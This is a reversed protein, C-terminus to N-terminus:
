KRLRPLLRKILGGAEPVRALAVQQNLVLLEDGDNVLEDAPPNLLLAGDRVLGIALAEERRKYDSAVDIFRLGPQKEGSSAALPVRRIPQDARTLLDYFVQGTEPAGAGHALLSCGIRASQIIEDVGATQFVSVNEPDIVEACLHLPCKRMIGRGALKKEFSRITFATLVSRADADSDDRDAVILVTKAVDLRVKEYEAEKTPDGKVFIFRNDFDHPPDQNAFVVIRPLRTPYRLALEELLLPGNRNWGCIIIQDVLGSMRVREERLDLIQTVLTQSIVGAFLAILFMGAFMLLMAVFKGGATIPAVDGYGVTTITVVAWWVANGFDAFAPNTRHEALFTLLSGASVALVVFAFSYAYLLSNRRIAGVLPEFPGQDPFLKLTQLLRFLRLVRLVRFYPILPLISALDILNSPRLMFKLRAALHYFVEDVWRLRVSTPFEPEVLWLRGFYDFAFVVLIMSDLVHLVVLVWGTPEFTFDLGLLLVSAMILWAMARDFRLKARSRPDVLLRHTWTRLAQYRSTPTPEPKQM